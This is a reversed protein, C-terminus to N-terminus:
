ILAPGKSTGIRTAGSEILELAFKREAIGGSAKIGFNPGVVSKMLQIDHVTAGANSFGTSTKVFHAGADQTLQCAIKKEEDSLLCTEIIVKVISGNSAKVVSEIDSKVKSYNKSKLNGLNIVMDIESAGLQVLQHAEQAKTETTNAGLPFGVVSCVKIGKDKLLSYAYEIWTPNVCVCAFQFQAAEECLKKIQEQTADSKLLTHDIYSNIKVTKGLTLPTDSYLIRYDSSAGRSRYETEM